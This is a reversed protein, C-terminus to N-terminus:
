AFVGLNEVNPPESFDLYFLVSGACDKESEMVYPSRDWIKDVEVEAEIGFVSRSFKSGLYQHLGLYQGLEAIHQANYKWVSLGHVVVM